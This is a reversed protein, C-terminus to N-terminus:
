TILVLIPKCLKAVIEMGILNYSILCIHIRSNPRYNLLPKVTDRDNGIKLLGRKVILQGVEEAM